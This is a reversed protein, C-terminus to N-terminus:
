IHLAFKKVMELFEEVRLRSLSVKKGDRMVACGGDEKLYEKFHFFNIIHSRHTRFFWQSELLAAGTETISRTVLIRPQDALYIFTYNNDAELRVINQLSIIRFGRSHNVAISRELDNVDPFKGISEKIRNTYIRAVAAKLEDIDVPKLIYDSGGEKIAQIAYQSHATIFITKFTRTELNRLLDFGNAAPMEVDLFVLDPKTKAILALAQEPCGAEDLLEVEPCYEELLSHLLSRSLVEDDVIISRLKM